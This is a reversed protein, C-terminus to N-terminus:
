KIESIAKQFISKFELVTLGVMANPPSQQSYGDELRQIYPLANTINITGSKFNLLVSNALAKSNENPEEGFPLDDIRGTSTDKSGLAVNWAGRARGSDVPTKSVVSAYIDFATKQIVSNVNLGTKEAFKKLDLEFSM